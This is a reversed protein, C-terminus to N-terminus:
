LNRAKKLSIKSDLGLEPDTGARARLIDPNRTNKLHQRSECGRIQQLNKVKFNEKKDPWVDINSKREHKEDLMFHVEFYFHTSYINIIIYLYRITPTNNVVHISGIIVAM